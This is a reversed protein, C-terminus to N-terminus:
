TRMCSRRGGSLSTIVAQHHRLRFVLDPGAVRKSVCCCTLDPSACVDSAKHKGVNDVVDILRMWPKASAAIAARRAMAAIEAGGAASEAAHDYLHDLVGPLPRTGRGIM